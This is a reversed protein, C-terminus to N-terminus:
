RLRKQTAPAGASGAFWWGVSVARCAADRGADAVLERAERTRRMSGAATRMSGRAVRVSCGTRSCGSRAADSGPLTKPLWDELLWRERAAASVGEPRECLMMVVGAFPHDLAVEPAFYRHVDLAEHIKTAIATQPMAATKRDTTLARM